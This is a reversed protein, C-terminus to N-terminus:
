PEGRPASRDRVVPPRRTWALSLAADLFLDVLKSGVRRAVFTGRVRAAPDFTFVHTGDDELVQIKM